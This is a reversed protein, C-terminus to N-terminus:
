ALRAGDRLARFYRLWAAKLIRIGHLVRFKGHRSHPGRFVASDEGGACLAVKPSAANRGGVTRPLAGGYVNKRVQAPLSRLLPAKRPAWLEPCLGAYADRRLRM